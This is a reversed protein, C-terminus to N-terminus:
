VHIQLAMLTPFRSSSKLSLFVTVTITLQEPIERILAVALYGEKQVPQRLYAQDTLDYFFDFCSLIVPVPLIVSKLSLHM